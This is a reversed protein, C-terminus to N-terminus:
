IKFIKFVCNSASNKALESDAKLIKISNDFYPLKLVIKLKERWISLVCHM